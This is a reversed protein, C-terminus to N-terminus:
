HAPTEKAQDHRARERRNAKRLGIIRLAETRRSFVVVYLRKGILGIARFREEGYSRRLDPEVIASDWGFERALALAVGHKLRNTEDKRPDFEIPAM